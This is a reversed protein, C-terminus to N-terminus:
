RGWKNEMGYKILRKLFDQDPRPVDVGYEHYTSMNFVSDNTMMYERYAKTRAQFIREFQNLKGTLDDVYEIGTVKLSECIADKLSGMTVAYPNAIHMTRDVNEDIGLNIMMQTAYDVPIINITAQLDGVVRLPIIMKGDKYEAKEDRLIKQKVLDVGAWPIYVMNFCSTEGTKSDGVVISPRFIMHPIGNDRVIKEAYMKSWEYTNRFGQGVDLESEYVKSTKDGCVYATSIHSFFKLGKIMGAFKLVRKTGEVNVDIIESKRHENFSTLGAFHWIEDVKDSLETAQLGDIGLNDEEIDGEVSEIGSNEGFLRSIREEALMHEDPRVLGIVKDGNELRAKAYNSGLFGTIGTVFITKM